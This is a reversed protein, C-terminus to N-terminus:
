ERVVSVSVDGSFVWQTAPGYGSKTVQLFMMQDTGTGPPNTCLLFKGANDTLSVSKVLAGPESSLEVTAGALPQSKGTPTTEIVNGTLTPGRGPLSGPLGSTSLTADAVVHVDMRVTGSPPYDFGSPCPAHFGAGAPIEITLVRGSSLPALYRGNGSSTVDTPPTYNQDDIRPSWLLLFRLDGLPRPGAATHEHVTGSV